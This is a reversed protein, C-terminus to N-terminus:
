CVQVDKSVEWVSEFGLESAHPFSSPPPFKLRSSFIEKLDRFIPVAEQSLRDVSEECDKLGLEKMRSYLRQYYQTLFDEAVPGDLYGLICRPILAHMMKKSPFDKRVLSYAGVWVKGSDHYGMEECRVRM